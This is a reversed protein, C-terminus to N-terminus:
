TVPHTSARDPQASKRMVHLFVDLRHTIYDLRVAYKQSTARLVQGPSVLSCPLMMHTHWQSSIQTVPAIARRTGTRRIPTAKSDM